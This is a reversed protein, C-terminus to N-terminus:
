EGPAGKPRLRTDYPTPNFKLEPFTDRLPAIPGKNQNQLTVNYRGINQLVFQMADRPIPGSMKLQQTVDLKKQNLAPNNKLQLLELRYALTIFKAAPNETATSGLTPTLVPRPQKAVAPQAKSPTASLTPQLQPQLQPQATPSMQPIIQNSNITALAGQIKGLQNTLMLMTHQIESNKISLTRYRDHIVKRDELQPSLAKYALHAENKQDETLDTINKQASILYTRGNLEILKKEHLPDMSLTYAPYKQEYDDLLVEFDQWDKELSHASIETNGLQDELGEQVAGYEDAIHDLWSEIINEETGSREEAQEKMIEAQEEFYEESLQENYEAILAKKAKEEQYCLGLLFHLLAKQQLKILHLTKLEELMAQAHQMEKQLVSATALGEPSKLFAIMEMPNDIGFHTLTEMDIKIHTDKNLSQM